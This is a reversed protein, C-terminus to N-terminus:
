TIQLIVATSILIQALHYSVRVKVRANSLPKVFRDWTLLTDSYYFLLGGLSVAFAPIVLWARSFLTSLSALLMLSLAAAYLTAPFVLNAYGSALIGVRIRRFARWSVLAVMAALLVAPLYAILPLESPAIPLYGAPWIEFFGFGQIYALHTFTFAVLSYLFPRSPLMLLIDGALAFLLGGTFWLRIPSSAAPSAVWLGAILALIVGPKTFYGLRKTEQIIAIWDLIALGLALPLFIM